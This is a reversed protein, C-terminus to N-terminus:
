RIYYSGFRTTLVSNGVTHTAVTKKCLDPCKEKFENVECPNCIDRSPHLYGDFECENLKMGPSEGLCSNDVEIEIPIRASDNRYVTYSDAGLEYNRAAIDVSADVNSCLRYNARVGYVLLHIQFLIKTMM